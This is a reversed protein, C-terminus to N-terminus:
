KQAQLQRWVTKNSYQKMTSIEPGFWDPAAFRMAEEESEFEVELVSLDFQEYVDIEVIRGEWEVSIRVKILPVARHAQILQDYLGESISYEIEERVLGGGRKFTHTFSLEGSRTDTIKRVRLEQSEDIALYTQEIRQEARVVLQGENFMADPLQSLLFKREIEQAM